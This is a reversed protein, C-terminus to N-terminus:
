SMAIVWSQYVWLIPSSELVRGVLITLQRIGHCVAIWIGVVFLFYSGWVKKSGGRGSFITASTICGGRLKVNGTIKNLFGLLFPTKFSWWKRPHIGHYEEPDYTMVMMAKSTLDPISKMTRYLGGPFYIACSGHIPKDHGWVLGSEPLQM